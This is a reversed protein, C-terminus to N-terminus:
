SETGRSEKDQAVVKAGHLCEVPGVDLSAVSGGRMGGRGALFGGERV